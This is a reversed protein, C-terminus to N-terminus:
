AVFYIHAFMELIIVQRFAFLSQIIIISIQIKLGFYFILLKLETMMCDKQILSIIYSNQLFIMAEVIKQLKCIESSRQQQLQPIPM